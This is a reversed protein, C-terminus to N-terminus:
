VQKIQSASVHYMAYFFGILPYARKGLPLLLLPGFGDIPDVTGASVGTTLSALIMSLIFFAILMAITKVYRKMKRISIISAGLIHNYISNKKVFQDNEWTRIYICLQVIKHIQDLETM